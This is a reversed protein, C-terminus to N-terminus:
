YKKLTVLLNGNSMLLCWVILGTRLNGLFRLDAM